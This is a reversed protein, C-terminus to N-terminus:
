IEILQKKEEGTHDFDDKKYKKWVLKGLSYVETINHKIISDLHSFHTLDYEAWGRSSSIQSSICENTERIVLGYEAGQFEKCDSLYKIDAIM